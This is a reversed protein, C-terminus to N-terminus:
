QAATELHKKKENDAERQVFERIQAVGYYDRLPGGDLVPQFCGEVPVAHVEFGAKELIRMAEYCAKSGYQMRLYAARGRGPSRKLMEDRRQGWRYLKRLRQLTLCAEVLGQIAELGQYEGRSTILFPLKDAPFMRSDPSVLVQTFRADHAKILKVAERSPELDNIFLVCYWRTKSM